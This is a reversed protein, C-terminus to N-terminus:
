LTLNYEYESSTNQSVWLVVSSLMIAINQSLNAVGYYTFQQEYGKLAYKLVLIAQRVILSQM